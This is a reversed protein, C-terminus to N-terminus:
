QGVESVQHDKSNATIMFMIKIKINAEVRSPPIIHSIEASKAVRCNLLCSEEIRTM